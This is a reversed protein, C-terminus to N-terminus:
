RSEVAANGDDGLLRMWLTIPTAPSVHQSMTNARKRRYDLMSYQNIEVLEYFRKKLRVLLLM